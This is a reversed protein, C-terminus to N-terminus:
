IGTPSTTHATNDTWTNDTGDTGTSEDQLDYLSNDL